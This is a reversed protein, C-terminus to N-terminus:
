SKAYGYLRVIGSAINGSDMLFRLANVATVTRWTSGIFGAQFNGDSNVMALPSNTTKYLSGSTLNYLTVSISAGQGTGTGIDLSIFAASQSTAAGGALVGDNDGVNAFGYAYTSSSWTSGNDTSYRLTAHAGNSAPVIESFILLYVDYSASIDSTFDLTASNSATKTDLLVLGGGAGASPVSYTGGANLFKGAAADGAAPAPVLGHTGGSGSDGVMDSLLLTLASVSHGGFAGSNNYQIEGDSGGPTGGGASCDSGTGSLKGNTDAHVCNGAVGSISTVTANKVTISQQAQLPAIALLALFLGLLIKRM